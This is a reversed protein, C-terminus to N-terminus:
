RHSWPMRDQNITVIRHYSSRHSNVFHQYDIFKGLILWILCTITSLYAYRISTTIEGHHDLHRVDPLTYHMAYRLPLVSYWLITEVLTANTPREILTVHEDADTVGLEEELELVGQVRLPENTEMYVQFSNLVAEFIAKSPAMLTFNHKGKVPHVINFILRHTDVHIEGFLPYIIEHKTPELRDPSSSIRKPTITFWRLHFAHSGFFAKSYFVSRQWLFCGIEHNSCSNLEFVENIEPPYEDRTLLHNPKILKFAKALYSRKESGEGMTIHVDHDDGAHSEADDTSQTRGGEIQVYNEVPETTVNYLYPLERLEGEDFSQLISLLLPLTLMSKKTDYM